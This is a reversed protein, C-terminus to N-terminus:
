EELPPIARVMVVGEIGSGSKDLLEQTPAKDVDIINYAIEDKHKNMMDMINLDNEALLTSIQGVM